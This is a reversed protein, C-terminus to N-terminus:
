RCETCPQGARNRHQNVDQEDGATRVAKGVWDIETPPQGQPTPAWLRTRSAAAIAIGEHGCFSQMRMQVAECSLVM